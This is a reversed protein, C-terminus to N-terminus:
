FEVPKIQQPNTAFKKTLCTLLLNLWRLKLSMTCTHAQHIWENDQETVTHLAICDVQCLAADRPGNANASM